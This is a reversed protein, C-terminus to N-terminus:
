EKIFKVMDARANSNSRTNKVYGGTGAAFYYSGLDVWGSSGSAYNVSQTPETTGNHVISIQANTDSTSYFIKYIYVHYNGASLINPTWKAYAGSGASYRSSSLSYGLLASDLWTGSESYGTEGNDIYVDKEYFRVYDFDLSAPLLTDDVPSMYAISTLWINILDHNHSTSPYSLTSKLIGDIYFKFNTETWEMGYVHYAASANFGMDYTGSSIPSDTGDANWRHITNANKTNADSGIEFGDLETSRDTGFTTSGDGKMAWFSNHWGAGANTKAKVEYYGYRFAQKSVLGGGTYSKGGYSEKKLNISMIGGGETVNQPRQASLAKVDTRYNWLSTDVSTGNFEDSWKLTYGTPADAHAINGKVSIFSIGLVTTAILSVTLFSSMLTKKQM